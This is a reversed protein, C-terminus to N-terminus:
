YVEFFDMIKKIGASELSYQEYITGNEIHVANDCTKLIFEPDHTVILLTKGEAKLQKVLEGVQGMHLYDLGSTPEDLLIMEKGAFIAGAIAVRQKQGGSLSMPHREEFQLLDLKSLIQEAKKRDVHKMGLGIEDMVSETFLQHNVDQMVLYCYRM